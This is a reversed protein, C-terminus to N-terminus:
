INTIPSMVIQYYRVSRNVMNIAQKVLSLMLRMFASIQNTKDMKTGLSLGTILLDYYMFIQKM